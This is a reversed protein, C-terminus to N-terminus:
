KFETESLEEIYKQTEMIFAAKIKAFLLGESCKGKYKKIVELAIPELRKKLTENVECHACDPGFSCDYKKLDNM